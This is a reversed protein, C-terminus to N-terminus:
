KNKKGQAPPAVKQTKPKASPAKKKSIKKKVAKKSSQAVTCVPVSADAVPATVTTPPTSIAGASSIAKITAANGNKTAYWLATHGNSDLLKPDAGALLLATIGSAQGAECAYMLPTKNNDNINPANLLNKDAGEDLLAQVRFLQGTSLAFQLAATASGYDRIFRNLQDQSMKQEAAQMEGTIALIVLGLLVFKKFFKM